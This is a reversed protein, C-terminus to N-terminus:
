AGCCIKGPNLLVTYRSQFRVVPLHHRMLTKSIHSDCDHGRVTKDPM